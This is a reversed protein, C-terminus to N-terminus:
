QKARSPHGGSAAQVPHPAGNGVTEAPSPTVEPFSSATRYSYTVETDQVVYHHSAGMEEHMIMHGTKEALKALDDISAVEVTRGGGALDGGRVSMLLPGYKAAIRTAEDGRLARITQRGFVVGALISLALGFLALARAAMVDLKLALLSLTNPESRSGKLSGSQSPHFLDTERPGLQTVQLQIADLRFTLRPSLHERIERGAVTGRATM